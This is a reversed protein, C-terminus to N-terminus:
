YYVNGTQQGSIYSNVDQGTQGTTLADPGAYYLPNNTRNVGGTEYASTETSLFPTGINQLSWAENSLVDPTARGYLSQYLQSPDINGLTGSTEAAPPAIPATPMAMDFTDSPRSAFM